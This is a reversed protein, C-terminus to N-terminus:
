PSPLLNFRRGTCSPKIFSPSATAHRAITDKARNACKGGLVRRGGAHLVDASQLVPCRAQSHGSCISARRRRATVTVSHEVELVHSLSDSQKKVSSVHSDLQQTSIGSRGGGGGGGGGGVSGGGGGGVLWGWRRWRLRRRWRWGFGAAGVASTQCFFGPHHYPRGSCNSSDSLPLGAPVRDVVRGTFEGPDLGVIDTRSRKRQRAGRRCYGIRSLQSMQLSSSGCSYRGYGGPIMWM